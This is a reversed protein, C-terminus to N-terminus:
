KAALATAFANLNRAKSGIEVANGNFQYIKGDIVMKTTINYGESGTSFSKPKLVVEAANAGDITIGLVMAM